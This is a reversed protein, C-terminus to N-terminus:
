GSGRSVWGSRKDDVHGTSILTVLSALLGLLRSSARLLLVVLSAGLVLLVLLVYGGNHTSLLSSGICLLSIRTRCLFSQCPGSHIGVIAHLKAHVVLNVCFGLSIIFSM